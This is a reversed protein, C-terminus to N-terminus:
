VRVFSIRRVRVAGRKAHSYIHLVYLRVSFISYSCANNNYENIGGSYRRQHLQPLAVVGRVLFSRNIHTPELLSPSFTRIINTAM